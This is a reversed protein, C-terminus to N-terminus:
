KGIASIIRFRWTSESIESKANLTAKFKPHGYVLYAILFYIVLSTLGLYFHVQNLNEFSVGLISGNTPNIKTVASFIVIASVLLLNRRELQVLQDYSEVILKDLKEPEEPSYRTLKEKM